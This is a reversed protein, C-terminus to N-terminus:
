LRDYEADDPNDWVKHFAAESAGSVARQLQREREKLRLFEIFDEVETIREPPLSRIKALLATESPTQAM